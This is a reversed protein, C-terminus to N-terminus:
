PVVIAIYGQQPTSKSGSGTGAISVTGTVDEACVIAFSGVTPDSVTLASSLIVPSFQHTASDPPDGAPDYAIFVNVPANGVDFQLFGADRNGRDANAQLVWIGNALEDPVNTLAFAEDTYYADGAELLNQRHGHSFPDLSELIYVPSPCDGARPIASGTTISNLWLTAMFLNGLKNPHLHDKFLSARNMDSGLFCSYFDPGLAVGPQNAIEHAIVRNYEMILKNRKATRVDSQAYFADDDVGWVPPVLAITVLSRGNDHLKSIVSLLEGKLTRKCASGSCGEGSPTSHFEGSDITGLSLLVADVYPRTRFMARLREDQVRSIRDGPHGENVVSFEVGAQHTLMEGLVEPWGQYITSTKIPRGRDDVTFGLKEGFTISDGIAEYSFEPPGDVIEVGSNWIRDRALFSAIGLVLAIAIAVHVRSDGFAKFPGAIPADQGALVRSNRFRMKQPSVTV